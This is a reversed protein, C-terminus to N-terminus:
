IQLLCLLEKKKLNAYKTSLPSRLFIFSGNALLDSTKKMRGLPAAFFTKKKIAPGNLDKLKFGGLEQCLALLYFFSM